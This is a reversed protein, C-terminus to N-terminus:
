AKDILALPINRAYELDLEKLLAPASEPVSIGELDCGSLDLYEITSSSLAKDILAPPINNAEVLTLEKLSAPLSGPVSIGELDCHSLRLISCSRNQASMFISRPVNAFVRWKPIDKCDRFARSVKSINKVDQKSKLSPDNLIKHTLDPTLTNM